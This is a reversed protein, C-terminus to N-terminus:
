FLLYMADLDSLDVVARAPAELRPGVFADALDELDDEDHFRAWADDGYGDYFSSSSSRHAMQDKPTTMFM